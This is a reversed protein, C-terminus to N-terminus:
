DREGRRADEFALQIVRSLAEATRPDLTKDARLHAALMQETAPPTSHADLEDRGLRFGDAAVGVWASLKMFTDLDPVHGNEVRSLTAASVDAEAAAARLGRGGRKERVLAALKALDVKETQGAM